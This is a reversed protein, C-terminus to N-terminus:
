LRIVGKSLYIFPNSVLYWLRRLLGAGNNTAKFAILDMKKFEFGFEKEEYPDVYPYKPEFVIEKQKELNSGMIFNSKM